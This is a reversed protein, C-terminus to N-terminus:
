LEDSTRYSSWVFIWVLEEMSIFREFLPIVFPSHWLFNVINESPIDHKWTVFLVCIEQMIIFDIAATAAIFSNGHLLDLKRHMLDIQQQGSAPACKRRIALTHTRKHPIWNLYLLNEKTSDAIVEGHLIFIGDLHSLFFFDFSFFISVVVFMCLNRMWKCVCVNAIWWM